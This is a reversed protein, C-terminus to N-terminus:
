AFEVGPPVLLQHKSYNSDSLLFGLLLFICRICKPPCRRREVQAVPRQHGRQFSPFLSFFLSWCLFNHGFWHFNGEWTGALLAMLFM